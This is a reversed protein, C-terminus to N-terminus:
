KETILKIIKNKRMQLNILEKMADFEEKPLNYKVKNRNKPDIIESKVAGLYIKLGNPAMYNKPLNHKKNKFIIKKYENENGFWFETWIMTREFYKHNVLAQTIDLKLPLISFNLGCNLVTEM